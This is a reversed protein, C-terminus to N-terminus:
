RWVAVIAGHDGLLAPPIPQSEYIIQSLTTVAIFGLWM